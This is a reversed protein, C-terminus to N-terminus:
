KLEEMVTAWDSPRWLRGDSAALWAAQDATPKGKESKLEVLLVTGARALVLDPLGPHGEAATRWGAHTRAPRPHWVRWGRLTAYDMVRRQFEAETM